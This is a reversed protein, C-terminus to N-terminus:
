KKDTQDTQNSHQAQEKLRKRLPMGTLLAAAMCALAAYLAWEQNALAFAIFLFAAAFYLITSFISWIKFNMVMYYCLACMQAGISKKLCLM